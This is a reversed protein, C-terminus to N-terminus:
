NNKFQFRQWPIYIDCEEDMPIHLAPIDSTLNSIMGFFQPDSGHYGNEYLALHKVNVESSSRIVNLILSANLISNKFHLMIFIAIAKKADQASEYFAYLRHRKHYRTPIFKVFGKMSINPTNSCLFIRSKKAKLFATFLFTGTNDKQQHIRVVKTSKNKTSSTLECIVENLKFRVKQDHFWDNTYVFQPSIDDGITQAKYMDIVEEQVKDYAMSDDSSAQLTGVTEDDVLELIHGKNIVEKWTVKVRKVRIKCRRNVAGSCIWLSSMDDKNTYWCHTMNVPYHKFLMRKTVIKGLGDYSQRLIHENREVFIAQDNYFSDPHLIKGKSREQISSNYTSQDWDEFPHKIDRFFECVMNEVMRTCGSFQENSVEHFLVNITDHNLNYMSKIKRETGTGKLVKTNRIYATDKLVRLLTLAAIIHQSGIAGVYYIERIDDMIEDILVKTSSNAREVAYQLRWLGDFIVKKSLKVNCSPQLRSGPGCLMGGMNILGNIVAITLNGLPLGDKEWSKLLMYYHTGTILWGIPLVLELVDQIFWVKSKSTSNMLDFVASVFISYFGCKDVHPLTFILNRSSEGSSPASVISELKFVKREGLMQSYKLLHQKFLARKNLRLYYDSISKRSYGLYVLRVLKGTDDYPVTFYVSFVANFGKHPCNLRDLHLKLLQEDQNNFTIAYTISEFVNIVKDNTKANSTGVLLLQNAFAKTRELDTTFPANEIKHQFISLYVETLTKFINKQIRNLESSAPITIFNNFKAFNMTHWGVSQAINGRRIDNNGSKILDMVDKIQFDDTRTKIYQKFTPSKDSYHYIFSPIETTHGSLTTVPVQKQKAKEDFSDRKSQPLQYHPTKHLDYVLYSGAPCPPLRYVQKTVWNSSLCSSTKIKETNVKFTDSTFEFYIDAQKKFSMKVKKQQISRKSIIIQQKKSHVYM